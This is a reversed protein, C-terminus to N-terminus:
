NQPAKQRHLLGRIKGPLSDRRLFLVGVLIYLTALMAIGVWWVGSLLLDGALCTVFTPVPLALLLALFYRRGQLGAHAATYPIIGNPLGPALLLITTYYTRNRKVSLADRAKKLKPSAEELAALSTQAHTAAYFVAIHAAMCATLCIACGLWPGLVIGAVLQVPMAPLVVSLIQVFSLLWLLGASYATYQGDFCAQLANEDGSSFAAWVNPVYIRLLEVVLGIAILLFLVMVALSRVASRKSKNQMPLNRERINYLLGARFGSRALIPVNKRQFPFFGGM